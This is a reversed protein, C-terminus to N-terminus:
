LQDRLETMKKAGHARMLRLHDPRIVHLMDAVEDLYDFHDQENEIELSTAYRHPEKGMLCQYWYDFDAWDYLSEEDLIINLNAGSTVLLEIMPYDLNLIALYIPEVFATKPGDVDSGNYILYSAVDVRYPKVEKKFDDQSFYVESMFASFLTEKKEPHILRFDFGKATLEVVKEMEGCLVAELMTDWQTITLHDDSV